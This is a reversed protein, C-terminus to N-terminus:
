SLTRKLLKLGLGMCSMITDLPIFQWCHFVNTLGTSIKPGKLNSAVHVICRATSDHVYNPFFLLILILLCFVALSQSISFSIEMCSSRCTICFTNRLWLKPAVWKPKTKLHSFPDTPGISCEWLVQREPMHYLTPLLPPFFFDCRFHSRKNIDGPNKWGLQSLARAQLFCKGM